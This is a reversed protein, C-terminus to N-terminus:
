KTSGTPATQKLRAGTRRMTVCLLNDVPGQSVLAASQPSNVSKVYESSNLGPHSLTKHFKSYGCPYGCFQPSPTPFHACPAFFGPFQTIKPTSLEPRSATVKLSYVKQGCTHLGFFGLRM